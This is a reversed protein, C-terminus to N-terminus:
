LPLQIEGAIVTAGPCMARNLSMENWLWRTYSGCQARLPAYLLLSLSFLATSFEGRGLIARLLHLSSLSSAALSTVPLHFGASFALSSLLPSSLFLFPLFPFLIFLYLFPFFTDWEAPGLEAMQVGSWVASSPRLSCVFMCVCVCAGVCMCQVFPLDFGFVSVWVRVTLYLSLLIHKIILIM